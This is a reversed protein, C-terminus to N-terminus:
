IGVQTYARAEVFDLKVVTDIRERVLAFYSNGKIINIPSMGTFKTEFYGSFIRM